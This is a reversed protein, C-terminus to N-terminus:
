GDLRRVEERGAALSPLRDKETGRDNSPHSSSLQFWAEVAQKASAKGQRTWTRFRKEFDRDEDVTRDGCLWLEWTEVSWTPVFITVKEDKTRTALRAKEVEEDLQQMRGKLKHRDGDIAVVLAYNEQRKSRAFKLERVFRKLVFADGAGRRDPIREIRLKGKGFWRRELLRRFFREHEVDECLLVGRLRHRAV